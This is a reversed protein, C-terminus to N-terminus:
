ILVADGVNIGQAAGWRAWVTTRYRRLTSQDEIDDHILSFNHILEIATAAPLALRWDGGVAEAVLLCLAPRLKKGAPAKVPASSEDIWGVHYRAMDYMGQYQPQSALLDRTLDDVARSFAALHDEVRYRARSVQGSYLPQGVRRAGGRRRRSADGVM